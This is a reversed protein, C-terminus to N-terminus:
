CLPLPMVPRFPHDSVLPILLLPVSGLTPHFGVFFYQFEAPAGSLSLALAGSLPVVSSLVVLAYVIVVM